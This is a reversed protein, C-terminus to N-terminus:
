ASHGAQKRVAPGRWPPSLDAPTLTSQSAQQPSSNALPSKDSDDALSGTERPAMAETLFDYLIKAGAQARYGLTTALQSGVTCADPERTCFGKLDHVTASAASLADAAGVQSTATSRQTGSPLLILVISLWFAMRLLFFM